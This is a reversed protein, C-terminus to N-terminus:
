RSFNILWDSRGSMFFRASAGALKDTGTRPSTGVVQPYWKGGNLIKQPASWLSPDDLRPAFSLYIGEQTYSEDRARNLLMVYHEIATNWHVAPGWFADVRGDADHWPQSTAVLPTAAPYSWEIRRGMMGPVAIFERQGANREWTGARWISIRGAPRDRDAWQLRAVAVGQADQQKQYQSYFLYLYKKDADLMVSLDGVGGIVYRNPSDCATTDPTAQLVIGLNQWTRGRDFSKAAGIRAVARDLRGCAEAPWENHYFGYWTEVEDSVVAEMWVAHGPHPLLSVQATGGLRDISSGNAIRPIGSHSTMAFLKHQGDELDWVLPSNSDVTGPLLLVPAASLTARPMPAAASSTFDGHPGPLVTAGLILALAVATKRLSM